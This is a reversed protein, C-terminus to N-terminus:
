LEQKILKYGKKVILMEFGLADILRMLTQGEPISKHNLIRCLNARTCHSREALEDYTIKQEIRAKALQQIIEKMNDQNHKNNSLDSLSNCNVAM